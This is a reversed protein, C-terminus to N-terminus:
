KWYETWKKKYLNVYFQRVHEARENDNAFEGGGPKQIQAIDDVTNCDRGLKCFKSTPKENNAKLFVMYKNTDERIKNSDYTLLDEECQKSQESGKGFLDTYVRVKSVLWKRTYKNDKDIGGQLAVIRNKYENLLVEYFTSRSCSLEEVAWEDISGIVQIRWDWERQVRALRREEGEIDDVLGLEIGRRINCKEIYLAELRGVATRLEESQRNLHNSICDLAGLVGIETIEPRDLIENRIYVTEKVARRKGLRLVAELHDFDRSLRDGYFVSEVEGMLGESIIYFDLRSKGYNEAVWANGVRRRTRFPVYSMKAAMPYKRRFPECYGGREIWERLMKGNDKQPIHERDELDLNEAGRGDDLVTNWDGGIVTPLGYGEIRDILERYFAVNNTNPGYVAGILMEKQDVRCRLLLYNEFVTERVEELIEVNRDRKIAICVGRDGRTSNSYLNYSNTKGLQLIRRIKEIGRGLRCDSM